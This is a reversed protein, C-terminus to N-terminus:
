IVKVETIGDLVLEGNQNYCNISMIVKNKEYIFKTIEVTTEIEDNLYVAKRYNVSENVLISGEGPLQTGILNSVMGLCFMGHAIRSGFITTKAYEESLHVPNKDGSIEAFQCVIEHSAIRKMSVKDGIKLKELKCNDKM